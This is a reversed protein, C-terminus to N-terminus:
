RVPEGIMLNNLNTNPLLAPGAALCVLHERLPKGEIANSTYTLDVDYSKQLALLAPTSLPRLRDLRAKKDAITDSLKTM